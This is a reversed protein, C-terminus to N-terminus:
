KSKASTTRRVSDVRAKVHEPPGAKASLDKGSYPPPRKFGATLKSIFEAEFHAVLAVVVVKPVVRLCMAADRPALKVAVRRRTTQEEGKEESAFYTVDPSPASPRACAASCGRVSGTQQQQERSLWQQHDILGARKAAALFVEIPVARSFAATQLLRWISDAYPRAVVQMQTLATLVKRLSVEELKEPNDDTAFQVTSSDTYDLGDTCEDLVRFVSMGFWLVHTSYDETLFRSFLLVRLDSEVFKKCSYFVAFMAEHVLESTGLLQRYYAQLYLPASLPAHGEHQAIADATFKHRYFTSIVHLLWHLSRELAPRPTTSSHPTAGAVMKVAPTRKVKEVADLKSDLIKAFFTQADLAAEVGTKKAADGLPGLPSVPKKDGGGPGLSPEETAAALMETSEMLRVRTEVYPLARKAVECALKMQSARDDREIQRAIERVESSSAQKAVIEEVKTWFAPDTAERQRKEAESIEDKQNRHPSFLGAIHAVHRFGKHPPPVAIAGLPSADGFEEEIGALFDGRRDTEFIYTNLIDRVSSIEESDKRNAWNPVPQDLLGLPRLPPPAADASSTEKTGGECCSCNIFIQLVVPPSRASKHDVDQPPDTDDPFIDATPVVVTEQIQLNDGLPSATLALAGASTSATRLSKIRQITESCEAVDGAGSMVSNSKVMAKTSRRGMLVVSSSKNGGDSVDSTVSSWRPPHPRRFSNEPSNSLENGALSDPTGDAVAGDVPTSPTPRERLGMAQLENVKQQLEALQADKMAVVEQLYERERDVSAIRLVLEEDRRKADQILGRVQQTSRRRAVENTDKRRCLPCPMEPTTPPALVPKLAETLLHSAALARIRLVIEGLTAHTDQLMQAVGEYTLGWTVPLLNKPKVASHIDFGPALMENVEDAKVGTVGLKQIFTYDCQATERLPDNPLYKANRQDIWAKYCKMVKEHKDMLAEKEGIAAAVAAWRGSAITVNLQPTGFLMKEYFPSCLKNTETVASRLGEMLVLSQEYVRTSDRLEKGKAERLLRQTTSETSTATVQTESLVDEVASAAAMAIKSVIEETERADGVAQARAAERKQFDRIFTSKEIHIDYLAAKEKWTEGNIQADFIQNELEIVKSKLNIIQRNKQIILDEEDIRRKAEEFARAKCHMSVLTSTSLLDGIITRHADLLAAREACTTAIQRALETLGADLVSWSKRLASSYESMSGTAAEESDRSLDKPVCQFAVSPDTVASLARSDELMRDLAHALFYVEQRSVPNTSPFAIKKKSHVQEQMQKSDIAPNRGIPDHAVWYEVPIKTETRSRLRELAREHAVKSERHLEDSSVSRLQKRSDALAIAYFHSSVGFVADSFLTFGNKTEGQGGGGRSPSHAVPDPHSSSTLSSDPHQLPAEAEGLLAQQQSRSMRHVRAQVWSRLLKNDRDVQVSMTPTSQVTTVLDRSAASGSTSGPRAPTALGRQVQSSFPPAYMREVSPDERGDVTSSPNSRQARSDASSSSVRRARRGGSMLIAMTSKFLVDQPGSSAFLRDSGDRLHSAPPLQPLVADSTAFPDPRMGELGSNAPHKSRVANAIRGVIGPESLDQPSFM